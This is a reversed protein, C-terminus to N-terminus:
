IPRVRGGFRGGIEPYIQPQEQINRNALWQSQRQSAELYAQVRIQFDQPHRDEAWRMLIYARPVHDSVFVPPINSSLSLEDPAVTAHVLLKPYGTGIDTSSQSPPWIYLDFGSESAWIFYENPFSSDVYRWTARFREFEEYSAAYLNVANTASEMYEVAWVHNVRSPLQYNQQDSVLNISIDEKRLAWRSYIEKLIENLYDLGTQDPLDPYAQQAKRIIDQATSM